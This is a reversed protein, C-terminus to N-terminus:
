PLCVHQWAIEAVQESSTGKAASDPIESYYGLPAKEVHDDVKTNLTMYGQLQPLM